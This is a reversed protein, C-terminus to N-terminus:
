FPCGRRLWREASESDGEIKLVEAPARNTMVRAFAEGRGSITARGPEGAAFTGVDSLAVTAAAQSRKAWDKVVDAMVARDEAVCEFDRGVARAIDVRHMFTDRTFIVNAYFGLNTGGAVVPDYIPVARGFAGLRSRLKLFRPYMEEYRDIIQQPSLHPRDDVQQENAADLINGLEEKRKIGSRLLHRFEKFSTLAEMWGILHAVIGQVDWRDCDTPKSWDEDSLSRLEQALAAYQYAAARRALDGNLGPVEKVHTAMASCTSWAAGERRLGHGM